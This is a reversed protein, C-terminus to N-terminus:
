YKQKQIGQEGGQKERNSSDITEGGAGYPDNLRRDLVSFWPGRSGVGFGGRSFVDIHMRDALLDNELVNSAEGQDDSENIPTLTVEGNNAVVTNPRMVRMLRLEYPIESGQAQGPFNASLLEDIDLTNQMYDIPDDM